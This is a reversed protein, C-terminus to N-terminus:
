FEGRGRIATGKLMLPIGDESLEQYRITLWQGILNKRDRYLEKANAKSGEISCRFEKGGPTICVFLACGLDSGGGQLVEVIKFEDDVFDKLKQLQTSRRGAEYGEGTNRVITGEYGQKVHEKHLKMVTLPTACVTSHVVIISKFQPAVKRLQIYRLAFGEKSVCDFAHFQLQESIGPRYTISARRTEQLPVNGPLILEGDVICPLKKGPLIHQVVEAPIFEGGRTWAVVGDTLMRSGNLKPQAVVPWVLDHSREKYKHALMPQTPGEFVEGPPMYGKDKKKQVISEFELLAQQEPSTENARGINKGEVKYPASVLPNTTKGTSTVHWALSQHFFSDGEQVVRAQWFKTGTKGAASLVPSETVTKM